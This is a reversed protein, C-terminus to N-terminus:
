VLFFAMLGLVIVVAVVGYKTVETFNHWSKKAHLLAQPDIDAPHSNNSGM